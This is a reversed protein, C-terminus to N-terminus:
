KIWVEKEDRGSIIFDGNEWARRMVTFFASAVKESEARAVPSIIKEEELIILGRTKSVNSFVKQRFEEKKGIVLVALDHESMPRLTTQLFKDDAHVIDDITFLRERLDRGLDPDSDSLGELIAKESSGDMRKLIEALASRGDISDASSTNINKVKERISEDVRKLVEPNVTKLKALRLITENKDDSPMLKIINAALQPKLQSLVLAKVIPLEDTIIHLLKVPDIDELFDFLKGEFDPVAKKLLEEARDKGFAAELITRATEVGGSPERAQKILSEFEALVVTAEDHDVRRISALEIVVKETQEPTLKAMVKAAEDVGILLLFKAVRRFSSDKGGSGSAPVKVLGPLNFQNYGPGESKAPRATTSKNAAAHSKPTGQSKMENQDAAQSQMRPLQYPSIVTKKESPKKLNGAPSSGSEDSRVTKGAGDASRDTDNKLIRNYAGLRKDNLNM